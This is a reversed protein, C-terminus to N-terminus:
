AESAPQISVVPTAASKKTKKVTAEPKVAIVPEAAVAYMESVIAMVAERHEVVATQIAQIVHSEREKESALLLEGPVSVLGASVLRTYLDQTFSRNEPLTPAAQWRQYTALPKANVAKVLARCYFVVLDQLGNKLDIDTQEDFLWALELNQNRCFVVLENALQANAEDSLASLWASLESHEADLQSAWARFQMAQDPKKKFPAKLRDLWGGSKETVSSSLSKASESAKAANKSIAETVKNEPAKPLWTPKLTVWVVVALVLVFLILLM